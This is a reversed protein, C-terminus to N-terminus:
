EFIFTKILNKNDMTSFMFSVFTGRPRAKKAETTLHNVQGFFIGQLSNSELIVAPQAITNGKNIAVLTQGIEKKLDFKIGAFVGRLSLCQNDAVGISVSPKKPRKTSLQYYSALDSIIQFQLFIPM